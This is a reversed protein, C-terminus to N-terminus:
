EEELAKKLASVVHDVAHELKDVDPGGGQAFDPKGGGSGGVVKMADGLLPRCNIDVDASRAVIIKAGEQDSALVAITKPRTILEKALNVLHRMDESQVHRVITVGSVKMARAVLDDVTEGVLGRKVSELEKRQDRNEAQLRKVASVLGDPTTMLMSSASSVAESMAIMKEVAAMGSAFELRVVGDQIRRTQLVAIAGVELTNKCHIGGCAEVDFDGIRVVRIEKGPVAGGQYLRFGYRKEADTRDMFRSDVKTGSLVVENARREI